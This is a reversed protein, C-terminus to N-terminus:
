RCATPAPTWAPGPSRSSTPSTPRCSPSCRSTTAASRACRARGGRGARRPDCAFVQGRDEVNPCSINVEIATVGPADRCGARGARRVGRRQRRRDVRGRPRGARRLWPLDRQLFADIGPGQLGISNLMGSPTEAMRPTPRGSRPASCSRSPSSRASSPWTSSSAGAGPRGRRLGVRHPGPQAARRARAPDATLDVDAPAADRGSAPTRTSSPERPRPQPACWGPAGLADLPITGVDDWRVRDGRFVPGEVCSRVMRTVGDDGVVPLVCTMCVGIGCAMSEEVPSRRRSATAGARGRRGRAADGDARLRLRRRDPARAIVERCCTPSSAACAWRATTPPSRRPGGAARRTSRASCGTPATAAGLVFDVAAAAAACGTPSRSCRRAATAAASWCAARGPRAPLPFPRGLPGVVDVSDRPAASPWGARHGPRARRLRVRGHRRLRPRCGTSRSRAACCCRPTQGASPSARRVPRAPVARRHRAGGPDDRPLGGVRRVTSCRAADGAGADPRRGAEATSRRGRSGGAARAAAGRAGAAVARRHRRPMLAEIGQVAAALGQVTTICPIGRACRRPASRTATSRPAARHRVPHQRRPRGRRRPDAPRDDARRGPGAGECHKRVVTAHVGNRRLVEATGPPPSSRSASTPWRAQGPLDDRAQRPQRGLRVGPGQDAAAGYAAPRRSPSRAHRLRRRHGHGRRDLADGPRARHRRRPRRADRFRNFPM